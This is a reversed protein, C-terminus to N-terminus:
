SESLFTACDNIATIIVVRDTGVATAWVVHQFNQYYYSHGEVVFRKLM